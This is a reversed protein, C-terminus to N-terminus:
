HFSNDGPWMDSHITPYPLFTFTNRGVSPLMSSNSWFHYTSESWSHSSSGCENQTEIEYSVESNYFLFHDTSGVLISTDCSDNNAVNAESTRCIILRSYFKINLGYISWVTLSLYLFMNKWRTSNSYIPCSRTTHGPQRCVNCKRNNSPSKKLRTADGKTRVM